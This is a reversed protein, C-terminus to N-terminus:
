PIERRLYETIDPPNYQDLLIGLREHANNLDDWQKDTADDSFGDLAALLDFAIALLADRKEPPLDEDELAKRGLDFLCHPTHVPIVNDRYRGDGSEIQNAPLITREEEQFVVFAYSTFFDGVPEGCGGCILKYDSM